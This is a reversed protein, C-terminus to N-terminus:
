SGDTTLEKKWEFNGGRPHITVEGRAAARKIVGMVTQHAIGYKQALTKYSSGDKYEKVIEADRRMNEERHREWRASRGDQLASFHNASLGKNLKKVLAPDLPKSTDVCIHFGPFKWGCHCRKDRLKM